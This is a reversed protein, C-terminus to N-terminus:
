EKVFDLALALNFRLEEAVPAGRSARAVCDTDASVLDRAENVSLLRISEYESEARKYTRFKTVLYEWRIDSDILFFIQPKGLRGFERAFGLYHVQEPRPSYGLEEEVERVLGNKFWGDFDRKDWRGLEVWALAGSTSCGLKGPDFAVEESRLAAVWQGEHTRLVCCVGITNSLPSEAFSLLNGDSDSSLDKVTRHLADGPIVKRQASKHNTVVQDSYAAFQVSLRRAHPDWDMARVVMSDYTLAVVFRPEESRLKDWMRQKFAKTGTLGEMVSDVNFVTTSSEITLGDRARGPRARDLLEYGYRVDRIAAANPFTLEDGYCWPLNGRVMKAEDRNVHFIFDDKLLKLQHDLRRFDVSVGELAAEVADNQLNHRLDRFKYRMKHNAEAWADQLLTRVQVECYLGELFTQDMENLARFFETDKDIRLRYHVSDYNRNPNDRSRVVAGDHVTRDAGSEGFWTRFFGIGEDCFKVLDDVFYFIIRVGALDIIRDRRIPFAEYKAVDLNEILSEISKERYAAKAIVPLKSKAFIREIQWELFKTVLRALRNHYWRHGHYWTLLAKESRFQAPYEPVYVEEVM